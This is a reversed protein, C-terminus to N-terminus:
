GVASSAVDFLNAKPQQRPGEVDGDRLPQRGWPRSCPVRAHSQILAPSSNVSSRAAHMSLDALRRYYM